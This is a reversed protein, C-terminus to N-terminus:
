RPAEEEQVVPSRFPIFQLGPKLLRYFLSPKAVLELMGQMGAPRGGAYREVTLVSVAFQDPLEALAAAFTDSAPDVRWSEPEAHKLIEKFKDRTFDEKKDVRLILEAMSLLNRLENDLGEEGAAVFVSTVGLASLTQIIAPIFVKEVACLPFRSAIQDLSNFVLIIRREKRDSDDKKCYRMRSISLLMRHFFEEPTVYGPMYTLIELRGEKLYGNLLKKAANEDAKWRDRIFGVLAEKVLKEDDRLSIIISRGDYDDNSEHVNYIAQLHGLHSKHAGRSGIIATTYGAPLGGLAEGPAGGGLFRSLSDLPTAVTKETLRIPVGRKFRSLIYHISPFIFIGGEGWPHARLREEIAQDPSDLSLSLDKKMGEVIKLQNRGWVHAQYRAKKVELTRIMYGPDYDKDLRIVIDAVFEWPEALEKEPSDLVIIVLKPGSEVFRKYDKDFEKDQQETPISNLSDFVIVDKRADESEGGPGVISDTFTWFRRSFGRPLEAPTCLRIYGDVEHPGLNFFKGTNTRIADEKESRRPDDPGAPVAGLFGFTEANSIVWPPYGEFSVYLAKGKLVARNHENGFLRVCLEMALTSKGTGPPGTILLTVARSKAPSSSAPDAAPLLIGGHFLEDFWSMEMAHEDTMVKGMVAPAFTYRGNDPDLWRVKSIGTKLRFGHM